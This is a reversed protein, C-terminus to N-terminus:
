EGIRPSGQKKQHKRSRYFYFFWMLIGFILRSSIHQSMPQSGWVFGLGFFIIGSLTGFILLTDLQTTAM